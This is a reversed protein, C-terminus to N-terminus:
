ARGSEVLEVVRQLFGLDSRSTGERIGVVFDKLAKRFCSFADAFILDRWGKDGVVRLAIPAAVDGLAVFRAQIGDAFNIDLGRAEGNSWSQVSTACQDARLLLMAPELIHIAYRDWSKPTIGFIYRIAGIEARAPDDLTFEQAYRLATGAFILGPRKQRSCLNEFDHITLAPTKDLYIPIGAELFPTALRLHNEADDRALLIGDVKGIMDEPRKVVNKILAARAIHRSRNDDQTWVHTVVADPLQDEPWRQKALYGSIAPFGCGNMTEPDYGNCIASWSYPHGNGEAFGIVGLRIVGRGM